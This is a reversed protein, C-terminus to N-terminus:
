GFSVGLVQAMDVVCALHVNDKSCYLDSHVKGAKTGKWKDMMTWVEEKADHNEM